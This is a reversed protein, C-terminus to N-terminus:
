TARWLYPFLIYSVATSIASIACMVILEDYSTSTALGDTANKSVKVLMLLTPLVVPFGLVATLTGPNDTKSAVAAVLTLSSAISFTGALMNLIFLQMDQVPNGLVLSYLGFALLGAVSLLLTNYIIKAVIMAEASVLTYYLFFEGGREREFSRSVASLASFLFIIWFLTNWVIPNLAIKKQNFLLYCVFVSAFVYLLM